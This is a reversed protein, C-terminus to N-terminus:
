CVTLTDELCIAQFYPAWVDLNHMGNFSDHSTLSRLKRLM